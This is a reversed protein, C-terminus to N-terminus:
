EYSVAIVAEGDTIDIVTGNSKVKCSFRLKVKQTPDGASNSKYEEVSVVEFKTGTPQEIASTSLTTGNAPDTLIVNVAGLALTNPVPIFSATFSSYASYPNPFAAVQYRTVCSETGAVTTLTVVYYGQATYTHEALGSIVSPSGDGFDWNYTKNPLYTTFPTFQFHLDGIGGVREGKINVQLPSEVKYSNTLLPAASPQATSYMQMCLNHTGPKFYETHITDGDALAGPHLNVGGRSWTYSYVSLPFSAKFYGNYGLPPLSGDNFPHEGIYLASDPHMAANLPSSKVDNFAFTLSYGCANNCNDQSMQGSYVYVGNQEQHHGSHMYYSNLGADIRIPSGNVKCSVYFVTEESEKESPLPNKKCSFVGAILAFYLVIHAARM